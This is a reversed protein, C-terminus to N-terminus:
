SPGVSNVSFWYFFARSLLWFRLVGMTPVQLSVSLLVPCTSSSLRSRTMCTGYQVSRPVIMLLPESYVTTLWDLSRGPTYALFFDFPPMSACNLM